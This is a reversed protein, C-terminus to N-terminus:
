GIVKMRSLPSFVVFASAGLAFVFGFFMTFQIGFLTALVGALLSGLPLTGWVFFRISANMRGLLHEPCLKQRASVQTINYTLAVFSILFEATAILVVAQDQFIAALPILGHALGAVVASIAVVPGEGIWKILRSTVLAGLLGGVSAVSIMVGYVAPSLALDRLALLPLLTMIMSGGFNGIGTCFTIALILKQNWVFRVGEAIERSLKQRESKAKVEERDRIFSLTLASLGFSIADILVLVPAKVITLLFGVVSPGGVSAIQGTTELRSNAIAIKEKPLLIPVYSQYAVDFFVTATGIITGIVILHWIELLGAFWLLPIMSAAVMRVLDAFIMVRRKLWRDVWAGALLGFVLFSATEATNLLGMQWETAGLINVALVAFALGSLQSGFVSITQGSWLWAFGKVRLISESQNATM